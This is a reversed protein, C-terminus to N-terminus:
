RRRSKRRDLAVWLIALSVLVPASFLVALGGAASKVAGKVPEISAITAGAAAGTALPKVKSAMGKVAQWVKSAAPGIARWGAAGLRAGSTALRGLAGAVALVAPGVGLEGVTAVEAGDIVDQVKFLM